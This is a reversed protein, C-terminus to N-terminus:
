AGAQRLRAEARAIDDARRAESRPRRPPRQPPAAPTGPEADAAALRAAFDSLARRTTVISRGLRVYDLRVGRIGKRAWRWLTSPHLRRGHVLPLTKAADTLSLVEESVLDISM